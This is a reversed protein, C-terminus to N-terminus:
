YKPQAIAGSGKLKDVDASSFVWDRLAEVTHEGPKAPPRQIKSPTRSFRPAPGPQKVGEVEVFTGRHKNHPHEPAEAM